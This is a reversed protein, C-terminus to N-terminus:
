CQDYLVNSFGRSYRRLAEKLYHSNVVFKNHRDELVDVIKLIFADGNIEKDSGNKTAQNQNSITATPSFTVSIWRQLSEYRLCNNSSACFFSVQIFFDQYM